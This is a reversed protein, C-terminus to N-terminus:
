EISREADGISGCTTPEGGATSWLTCMRDLRGRPSKRYIDEYYEEESPLDDYRRQDYRGHLNNLRSPEWFEPGQEQQVKSFHELWVEEQSAQQAYTGAGYNRLPSTFNMREAEIKALDLFTQSVQIAM